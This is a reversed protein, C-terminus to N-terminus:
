FVNLAIESSVLLSIRSISFDPHLDAPSIEDCKLIVPAVTEWWRDTNFSAPKIESLFSPFYM